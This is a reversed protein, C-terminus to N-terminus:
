LRTTEKGLIESVDDLFKQENSLDNRSFNDRAIKIEKLKETIQAIAEAM